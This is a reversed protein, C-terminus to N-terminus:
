RAAGLVVRHQHPFGSCPFGSDSFPQCVPDNLPVYGLVQLVLHNVGQIHPCQNCTGFVLAFELFAEFGDDLLHGGGITGDHQKDILDMGQHPCTSSLPGHVGCVDELGGQGPPFQPRDAGSGQVLVLFVEFFILGQLPAELLDRHLFRIGFTRNGDEASELLFVFGVVLDPYPVFSYNGCHFERLAVYGVPEQRILGDVQHIFSGGLEPHLDVGFGFFQVGQVPPDHLQFDLDLRDLAFVIRILQLGEICVEGVDFFLSVFKECM